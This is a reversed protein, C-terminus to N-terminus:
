LLEDLKSWNYKYVRSSTLHASQNYYIRPFISFNKYLWITNNLDTIAYACDELISFGYLFTEEPNFISLVHKYNKFYGALM